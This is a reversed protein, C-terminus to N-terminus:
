PGVAGWRPLLRAVVFGLGVSLSWNLVGTAVAPVFTDGAGRLAGSYSVYMADALQYVAAFVLLVAGTRLVDPESTFLQMLQNRFFFLLLGCSLMYVLNVKFGLNARHVALDAQGMGIYRGVLATIATGIGIAPMFSVSMFRFTFMNAAMASEGVQAMVVMSFMAWALVDAVFQVGAPWGVALLTRLPELRLRWDFSNFKERIWPQLGYVVLVLAEITVGINQAWAAGAIGYSRMGWRGLIMPYAAVMNAGVGLAAAGFVIGPKNIALLFQGFSTSVMKVFTTALTIQLYVTEMRALRPEHGMVRFMGGAYVMVPVLVVAWGLGFWVGQWLYTGCRRYEGRGFNQSVLTNVLQIVGIGFCMLSFAFLGSMAAAAAELTGLRALLYTDIFQMITYSAMQLVTPGALRLLEVLPRTQPDVPMMLNHASENMEAKTAHADRGHGDLWCFFGSAEAGPNM